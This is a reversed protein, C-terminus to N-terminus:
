VALPVYPSGAMAACLLRASPDAPLPQWASPEPVAPAPGPLPWRPRSRAGLGLVQGVDDCIVVRFAAPTDHALLRLPAAAVLLPPRSLGSSQARAWRSWLQQGPMDGTGFVVTCAAQPARHLPRDDADFVASDPAAPARVLRARSGLLQCAQGAAFSLDSRVAHLHRADQWVVTVSRPWRAVRQLQWRSVPQLRALRPILWAWDVNGTARREVQHRRLLTALREHPILPPPQLAVSSGSDFLTEGPQVPAPLPTALWALPDDQQATAVHHTAVRWHQLATDPDPRQNPAARSLELAQPPRPPAPPPPEDGVAGTWEFGLAAAADAWRERPLRATVRLLDAWAVSGHPAPAKM